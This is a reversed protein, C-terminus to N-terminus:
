LLGDLYLDLRRGEAGHWGWAADLRLVGDLISLGFGGSAISEDWRIRARDGAWGGDMFLALGVARAAAVRTLPVVLEARGSAFSPGTLVGPAFGRLSAPGGLIWLRQPPASGWTTGGRASLALRSGAVLPVTARLGARAREFDFDGGEAQLGLELGVGPRAPDLGWWPTLALEIGAQDARAAPAGPRFGPDADLWRALSENTERAAPAQREGYVRARYWPRMAVPPAITLAAGTAQFYDGDDRGFLFAMASAGLSLGRSAPEVLQLDHYASLALSRRLTEHTLVLSGRPELDASGLRATLTASLPAGGLGFRLAGRAGMSFGEVRNYRVLDTRQTGWDFNWVTAVEDPPPLQALVDALERVEASSVFTADDSWIPEPLYASRRLASEDAPVLYTVRRGRRLTRAATRWEGGGPAGNAALRAAAAEAGLPEAAASDGDLVVDEIDYAIEGAIPASFVGARVTGEIRLSRPMWVRFDWLAYDVTVLTIDAVFPRLLGPLRRLDGDDTDEQLDLARAMRYAARVVAGTGPEIWLAGSLLFPSDRRPLLDLRVTRLSRGDPLSVTLTDGARFRYHLAASDAFPHQFRDRDDDDWEDLGLLLPDGGPRFGGLFLGDGAVSFCQSGTCRRRGNREGGDEDDELAEPLRSRLALMQVATVGGRAGERGREWIVRAAAEHNLLARDRLPMRLGVGLRQSMVAQYRVLSRDVELWRARAAAHLVRADEDLFPDPLGAPAQAAARAAPALLLGFLIALARSRARSM